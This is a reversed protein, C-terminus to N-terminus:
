EAISKRGLFLSKNAAFQESITLMAVAISGREEGKESLFNETKISFLITSGTRAM